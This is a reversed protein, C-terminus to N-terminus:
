IFLANEKVVYGKESFRSMGFVECEEYYKSKENTMDYMLKDEDNTKDHVEIYEPRSAFPFKM